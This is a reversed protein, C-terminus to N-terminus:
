RRSRLGASTMLSQVERGSLQRYGGIQLDGIVLPGIATRVLKRVRSGAAEIMRRVQRNRGETITIELFTSTASDRLREVVAPRTPGDSLRVGKRLEELADEDLVSATKVLYTKPV